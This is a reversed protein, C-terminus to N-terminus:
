SLVEVRIQSPVTGPSAGSTRIGGQIIVVAFGGLLGIERAAQKIVTRTLGEGEIHVQTLRLVNEQQEVNAIVTVLGKETQIRGHVVNEDQEVITVISTSEM